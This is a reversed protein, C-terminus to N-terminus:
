RPNSSVIDFDLNQTKNNGRQGSVSLKGGKRAFSFVDGPVLHSCKSFAWNSTCSIILTSDQTEVQNYITFHTWNIPINQAPTYQSTCTANGQYTDGLWSGSGTCDTNSSGSQQYYTTTVWPVARWALARLMNSPFTTQRALQNTVPQSNSPNPMVFHDAKPSEPKTKSVFDEMMYGVVGQQTRVKTYGKESGILALSDGCPVEALTPSLYSATSHVERQSSVCNVYVRDVNDNLTEVIPHTVPETLPPVAPGQIIALIVADPIGAKKLEALKDPATDFSCVSLKIKALIIEQSLGAKVMTIIDNNTLAAATGQSAQTKQAVLPIVGIV